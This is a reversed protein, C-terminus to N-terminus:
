NPPAAVAATAAAGEGAAEGVGTETGTGEDREDRRAVGVGSWAAVRTCASCRPLSTRLCICISLSLRACLVMASHLRMARLKSMRRHREAKVGSTCIQVYKVHSVCM